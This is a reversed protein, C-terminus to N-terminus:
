ISISNPIGKGTIGVGSGFTSTDPYLLQYAIKAPGQRNKLKPNRNRKLIRKEVEQLDEGFQKFMEHIQKNDTWGGSSRQGLYVEDSIHQSLVEVLAVSLRMVCREPLMQLYYKDPDRLFEVFDLMGEEPIFKRCLTPRNPPYGSYGYQGFNVAAHLASSTWILTTLAETLDAVTEMPKWWEKHHLDGHGVNRIESWWAQIEKDSRVSYNNAYFLLCFNTVWKKIAVWIDLGDAGYPYDEFLLQVGAPKSSDPIAMNRKLLDAPLGQEDFRWDKYFASSLEMSIEGTALIKELIGGSDILVSRALANIHMTDKFHPNLLRHIPHMASLQRRTAIIFPEIVAHTKLWHSILHHHCSDNVLVHAKAFQWLAVESGQNSRSPLFVRQMEKYRSVRSGPLSLEIAVPKLTGDERLFLLTRSAYTCVGEKMNIRRLFPMLYDHHDLIFIRQQYMAKLIQIVAPNTGALMQRAFEKDDMWALENEAIIQPLPFEMEGNSAQIIKRFQENPEITKLMEAFWGEVLKRNSTFLDHFELFSKFNNNYKEFLLKTLSEFSSIDKASLLKIEPLLFQVAARVAKSILASLKKPSLREDPPVYVDLRVTEEKRETAHDQNNGPCGTRGRRPYPYKASGGLVPRIGEPGKAPNGLDNYFDYGYSREWEKRERTGEGRLSNLEENRLEVLAKPTQNPLYSTNSFFVRGTKTQHIPYIWSNCDFHVVHNGPIRLTASQLYFKHKHQNKIVFAGPVGFTPEVHFKIKYTTIKVGYRKNSKGDRLKGIGSLQGKGTNSDIKSCSYLQISAASGPASEGPSQEIIIEGKIICKKTSNSPHVCGKDHTANLPNELGPSQEM